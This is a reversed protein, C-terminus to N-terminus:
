NHNGTYNIKKEIELYFYRVVFLGRFFHGASISLRQKSAIHTRAAEVFIQDRSMYLKSFHCNPSLRYLHRSYVIFHSSRLSTPHLSLSQMSFLPVDFQHNKHLHRVVENLNIAYDHSEMANSGKTEIYLFCGSWCSFDLRNACKWQWLVAM